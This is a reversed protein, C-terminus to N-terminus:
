TMGAPSRTSQTPIVSSSGPRLILMALLEEFSFALWSFIQQAVGGYGDVWWRAWRKASRKPPSGMWSPGLNKNPFGLLLTSLWRCCSTTLRRPSGSAPTCGSMCDVSHRWWRSNHMNCRCVLKVVYVVVFEFGSSFCLAHLKLINLQKLIAHATM